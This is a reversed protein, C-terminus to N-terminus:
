EFTIGTVALIVKILNQLYQLCYRVLQRDFFRMGALKQHVRQKTLSEIYPKEPVSPTDGGWVGGKIANDSVLLWSVNLDCFTMVDAM